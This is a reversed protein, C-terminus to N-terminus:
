LKYGLKKCTYLFLGASWAWPKESKYLWATVAHGKHYIEQVCGDRVIIESIKLIIKKSEKLQGIEQKVIAALCGLWIWSFSMHYHKIGAIQNTFFVRWFYYRNLTMPLPFNAKELLFDLANNIKKTKTKDAVHWLIALLNGDSNFYHHRSVGFWDSYYGGDSREWLLSNIASKIKECQLEFQEALDIRNAKKSLKSMCNLAECYCVNTYTIAGRKLISEAWGGGVPEKLLGNKYTRTKLFDFIKTLKDFNQELFKIDNTKEIYQNFCIVLIPNQSISTGSYYPSAYSPKKKDWAEDIKFGLFRLPYLPNAIRKPTNGFRDQNELYLNLNKKVVDTDGLELAGFSAFFSDWSWYVRRSGTQIGRDSYCSRLNNKAIHIAQDIKSM